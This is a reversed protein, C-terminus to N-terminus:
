ALASPGRLCIWHGILLKLVLPPVAVVTLFGDQHVIETLIISFEQCCMEFEPRIRPLVVWSLCFSTLDCQGVVLEHYGGIIVGRVQESPDVVLGNGSPEFYNLHLWFVQLEM